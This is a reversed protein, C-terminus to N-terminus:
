KRKEIRYTTPTPAEDFFVTDFLWRGGTNPTRSMKWILTVQCKGNDGCAIYKEPLKKDVFAANSGTLVTSVVCKDGSTSLSAVKSVASDYGGFLIRYYSGDMIQRFKAIPASAFPNQSSTFAIAVKLGYNPEPKDNSAMAKVITDIAQVPTTFTTPAPGKYGEPLPVSFSEAKPIFASAAPPTYDQAAGAPTTTTLLSASAAGFLLSRRSIEFEQPSAQMSLSLIPSPSPSTSCTSSCTSASSSSLTPPAGLPMTSFAASSTVAALLLVPRLMPTTPILFHVGIRVLVRATAHSSDM